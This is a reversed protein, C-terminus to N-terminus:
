EINGLFAMKLTAWPPAAGAPLMSFIANRPCCQIILAIFDRYQGDAM